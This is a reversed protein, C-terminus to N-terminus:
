LKNWLDIFASMSFPNPSILNPNFVFWRLHTSDIQIKECAFIFLYLFSCFFICNIKPWPRVQWGTKVEFLFNRIWTSYKGKLKPWKIPYPDLDLKAHRFILTILLLTLYCCHQCTMDVITFFTIERANFDNGWAWM